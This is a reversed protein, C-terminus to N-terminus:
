NKWPVALGLEEPPADIYYVDFEVWGNGGPMDDLYIRATYNNMESPQEMVFPHLPRSVINVPIVTVSKEPLPAFSTFEKVQAGDWQIHDITYEAGRFNVIDRGDILVRM